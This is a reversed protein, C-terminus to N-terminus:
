RVSGLYGWVIRVVSESARNIASETIPTEASSGFLLITCAKTGGQVPWTLIAVDGLMLDDGAITAHQDYLHAGPPLLPRIVGIRTGDNPAFTSLLDLIIKRGEPLILEGTYLGELLGDLDAVTSYRGTINTHDAGWSHLTSDVDLHTGLTAELLTQTADGESNVLMAYLLQSYTRGNGHMELFDAYDAPAIDRSELSKIFLM